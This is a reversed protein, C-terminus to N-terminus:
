FWCNRVERCRRCRHSPHTCSGLSWARSVGKKGVLKYLMVDTCIRFMFTFVYPPASTYSWANKVAASSPPLRDAERGQM